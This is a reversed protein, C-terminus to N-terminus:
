DDWRGARSAENNKPDETKLMRPMTGFSTAAFQEAASEHPGLQFQGTGSGAVLCSEGRKKPLAIAGATRPM